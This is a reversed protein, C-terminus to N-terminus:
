RCIQRPLLNLKRAFRDGPNEKTMSAPEKDPQEELMRDGTELREGAKTIRQGSEHGEQGTTAM